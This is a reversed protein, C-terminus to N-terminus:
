TYIRADCILFSQNDFLPKEWDKYQTLFAMNGLTGGPHGFFFDRYTANKCVSLCAILMHGITQTMILSTMPILGRQDCEDCKPYCLMFDSQTLLNNTDIIDKEETIIIRLMRNVFDKFLNNVELLEKTAGSKTLFIVADEEQFRQMGGHMIEETTPSEASIGCSLLTAALSMAVYRNKGVGLVWITRREALHLSINAIQNALTDNTCLDQLADKHKKLTQQAHHDLCYDM